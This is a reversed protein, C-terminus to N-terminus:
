RDQDLIDQQEMRALIVGFRPVELQADFTGSISASIKILELYGGEKEISKLVADSLASFGYAGLRIAAEKKELIIANEDEGDKAIHCALNLLDERVVDGANDVPSQTLFDLSAQLSAKKDSFSSSEQRIIHYQSEIGRLVEVSTAPGRESFLKMSESNFSLREGADMAHLGMNLLVGLLVFSLKKMIQYGKRFILRLLKVM